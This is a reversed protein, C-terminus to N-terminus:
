RVADHARAGLSDDFDVTLHGFQLGFQATGRGLLRSLEGGAFAIDGDEVPIPSRKILYSLPYEQPFGIGYQDDCRTLRKLLFRPTRKTRTRPGAMVRKRSTTAPAKGGVTASPTNASTM